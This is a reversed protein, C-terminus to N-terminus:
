QNKETTKDLLEQEYKVRDFAGLTERVDLELHSLWVLAKKHISNGSQKLNRSDVIKFNVDKENYSIEVRMYFNRYHFGANVLNQGRGEYFWYQKRVGFVGALIKDTIAIAINSVKPAGKLTLMIAFEAESMSLSAPIAISAPSINETTTCASLNLVALLLLLKKMEDVGFNFRSRVGKSSVKLSPCVSSM